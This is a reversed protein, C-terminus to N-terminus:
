HISFKSVMTMQLEDAIYISVQLLIIGGLVACAIPVQKRAIICGCAGLQGILNIIVFMTAIFWGCSWTADM